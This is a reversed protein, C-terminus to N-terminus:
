KFKILFYHVYNILAYYTPTIRNAGHEQSLLNTIMTKMVSGIPNLELICAGLIDLSVIYDLIRQHIKCHSGIADHIWYKM